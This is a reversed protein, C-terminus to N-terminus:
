LRPMAGLHDLDVAIRVGRESPPRRHQEDRVRTHARPPPCHEALASRRAVSAVAGGDRRPEGGRAGRHGGGRAHQAAQALLIALDGAGPHDVVPDPERPGRARRFLREHQAGTADPIAGLVDRREVRGRRPELTFTVLGTRQTWEATAAMIGLVPLLMALPLTSLELLGRFSADGAPGWILFAALILVAVAAMVIVMWRGARTDVMKRLEAQLTRGFPVGPRGELATPVVPPQSTPSGGVAPTTTTATSM